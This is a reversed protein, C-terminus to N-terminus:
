LLDSTRSTPYRSASHSTVVLSSLLYEPTNHSEQLHIRPHYLASNSVETEEILLSSATTPNPVQVSESEEELRSGIWILCNTVLCFSRQSRFQVRFSFEFLNFVSEDSHKRGELKTFSIMSRRRWPDNLSSFSDMYRISKGRNFVIWSGEKWSLMGIWSSM